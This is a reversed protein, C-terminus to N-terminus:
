VVPFSFEGIFPGPVHFPILKSGTFAAWIVFIAFVSIVSAARNPIVASEDGFTVTKLSTFDDRSKSMSSVARVIYFAAIFIVIYIILITM